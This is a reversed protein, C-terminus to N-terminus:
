ASQRILNVDTTATQLRYITTSAAIFLMRGDDGGFCLNAVTEPIPVTGLKIGEASYVHVGDGASTWVNGNMDVRLGDPVGVEMTVFTRGNKCRAGDVDYARIRANGSHEASGTLASSDAVYVTSGDPSFALGNPEEVDLIAARTEGTATDHRFVYHDGYERKGPHGERPFIIGYPPDTFWITGDPAVVLDNPSNFPVGGWSEVVPTVVGDRDREIRRRGHSCQLVSGDRDLTRGNTFEVHSAYISSVGTGLYHQMIRNNPIDSWRLSDTGPLYVIGEAWISGQDVPEAVAGAEVLGKLGVVPSMASM